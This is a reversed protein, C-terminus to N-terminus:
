RQNRSDQASITVTNAGEALALETRFTDAVAAITEGNIEVTDVSADDLTVVVPTSVQNTFSNDVPQLITIAPPATDIFRLTRFTYDASIRRNGIGDRSLVRYHYLLDQGLGNLLVRHITTLEDNLVSLNGYSTDQGWEVQADAPEDTQWVVEASNFVINEARVNGILPAQTDPTITGVTRLQVADAVIPGDSGTLVQVIAPSTTLEFEGLVQWQGTLSQDHQNFNFDSQGSAHLVRYVADKLGGFRFYGFYVSVEYQGPAPLDVQWEALASTNYSYRLGGGYSDQGRNSSWNGSRERYSADSNDLIIKFEDTISFNADSVDSPQGDTADSIRVLCAESPGTPILWDHEGDNVTSEIISAWNIGSDLSFELNVRDITGESHWLITQLTSAVWSEGGNPKSLTIRAGVISFVSNSVDTISGDTANAIRIMCENSIINPVTWGFEGDNTTRDAIDIWGQGGNQSFELRVEGFSGDSLWRIAHVSEAILNEGGNPSELRLPPLLQNGDVTITQNASVNPIFAEVGDLFKVLVDVKDYSGLGFHLVPDDQGMYGNNSRSERMGLLTTRNQNAPYIYTKAGFAGLQGYPSILRIKLWSGSNYNNRVLWNRSRKCGVAFDPDGDNDIDAFGIARPDNIKSVPIPPGASFMGSGDNLYCIDDGAFVLDLDGDNDLDAFGGMYGDTEFFSQKFTFSSNGNNLYLHGENASALLLDLDGDNDVDSSTIGEGVRQSIGISAPPILQFNGSGDNNLINLDGTRNAGFVDIDGDGDYDTDTAGQGVPATLLVGNNIATFQMSGENRYLENTESPPDGSGQYNTVSFLDLDGDGEMDFALVARTPWERIPIGALPTVETFFGNGDNQFINNIGLIDGHGYTTGNFFDFDGDNDLDAFTAGHSGSDFDAIGRQSAENAFLNTGKNHFFLDEMARSGLMSIFLDPRGNGDVDAFTASHGGFINPGGTGALLAIDSFSLTTSTVAISFVAGSVDSVLSDSTDSIRILSSDSVTEPIPWVYDGANPLSGEIPIWSTGNDTSLQLKVSNIDGTSTWAISTGSGGYFTEGGIPSSLTLSNPPDLIDSPYVRVAIDDTFSPLNIDIQGGDVSRVHTTVIGSSPSFVDIAYMGSDLAVGQISLLEPNFTVNKEGTASSLYVIAEKESSLLFQHDGPGSAIQGNLWLNPYDTIGNWFQRLLPADDEFLNWGNPDYNHSFGPPNYVNDRPKYYLDMQQCKGMMFKWM